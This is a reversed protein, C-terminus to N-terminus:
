GQGYQARLNQISIGEADAICEESLYIYFDMLASVVQLCSLPRNSPSKELGPPLWHFSKGAAEVQLPKPSENLIRYEISGGVFPPAGALCEYVLTAFSYVDQRMDTGEGNVQEPAMYLPTGRGGIGTIRTVAENIERAIGFDCVFATRSRDLLINSPKIDGHLIGRIHAYDVASAVSELIALILEWYQSAPLARINALDEALNKGDIYDMLIFAGQSCVQYARTPVIHPHSLRMCAKAESKLRDIAQHDQSLIAPLMKIAVPLDLTTDIALWVSGMGGEGLKRVVRYRGALVIAEDPRQTLMDGITDYTPDRQMTNMNDLPDNM